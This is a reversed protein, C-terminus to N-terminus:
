AGARNTVMAAVLASLGLAAALLLSDSAASLPAGMQDLLLLARGIQTSPLLGGLWEIWQPMAQRPWTAGSLFFIPLSTPIVVLLAERPSRFLSAGLLAFGAFAGGGVLAVILLAALSAQRPVDQLVFFWGFYVLALTASITGLALWQGILESRQVRRYGAFLLAAGFLLTQQLIVPTVAPFIYADYALDPNFMPQSVVTFSAEPVPARRGAGLDDRLSDTLAEEVATGIAKARVLYTGNVWVAIGSNEGRLARQVTGAPLLVIGDVERRMLAARAASLDSAYAGVRVAESAELRAVMARTLPTPAEDVLAIAVDQAHGQRYPAPYYVGYFLAALVIMLVIQRSAAIRRFTDVFSTRVTM